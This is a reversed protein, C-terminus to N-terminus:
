QHGAEKRNRFTLTSHAHRAEDLAITIPYVKWEDNETVGQPTHDLQMTPGSPGSWQEGFLGLVLEVWTLRMSGLFLLQIVFTQM